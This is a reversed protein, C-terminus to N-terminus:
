AVGRHSRGQLIDNVTGRSLGVRQSIEVQPVGDAALRRIEAVQEPTSRRYTGKGRKKAVMSPWEQRRYQEQQLERRCVKCYRGDGKPGANASFPHGNKCRDTRITIASPSMGRLMNTQHTVAELHEPNVCARVRCLHDVEHGEPIPGHAWECVIRHVYKGGIRAYGEPSISGQWMWCGAANPIIRVAIHGPLGNIPYSTM